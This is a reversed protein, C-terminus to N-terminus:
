ENFLRGMLYNHRERRRGPDATAKAGAEIFAALPSGVGPNQIEAELERLNRGLVAPRVQHQPRQEVLALEPEEGVAQPLGFQRDYIAAFLSYFLPLRRFPSKPLADGHAESIINIVRDFRDSFARGHPFEDDYRRYFSRIQQSRTQRIGAMMTIVLESTFEAEGMRSIKADTFIKKTTWFPYYRLAIDYVTQKFAGFYEANLLEQATLKETYTNLRAFIRLVEADSVNELTNVQFKYSLVDQKADAPLDAYHMGAYDPNHVGLVPFEGAVFDLICRLRQQGDVVERITRPPDTLTRLRLFIPPIPMRRLISDMLYSKAKAQWVGRRQFKPTLELQRSGNWQLFDSVPYTSINPQQAV